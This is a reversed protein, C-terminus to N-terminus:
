PDERGEEIVKDLALIAGNIMVLTDLGGLSAPLKEISTSATIFAM